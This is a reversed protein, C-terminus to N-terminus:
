YYSWSSGKWWNDNKWWGWDQEQAPQEPRSSGRQGDQSGGQLPPEPPRSRSRLNRGDAMLRYVDETAREAPAATEDGSRPDASSAPTQAAPAPQPTQAAPAPQINTDPPQALTTDSNGGPSTYSYGGLPITQNTNEYQRVLWKEAEQAKPNEAFWGPPCLEITPIRGWWIEWALSQTLADVELGGFLFDTGKTMVPPSSRPADSTREGVPPATNSHITRRRSHDAIKGSLPKMRKGESGPDLSSWTGNEHGFTWTWQLANSCKTSQCIAEAKSSPHFKVSTIPSALFHLLQDDDLGLSVLAKWSFYDPKDCHFEGRQGFGTREFNAIKCDDQVYSFDLCNVVPTGDPLTFMYRFYKTARNGLRRVDTMTKEHRHENAFKKADELTFCLQAPAEMEQAAPAPSPHDMEQAALAPSPHVMEQAAPAPLPTAHYSTGWQNMAMTILFLDFLLAFCSCHCSRRSDASSMAHYAAHLYTYISHIYYLVFM